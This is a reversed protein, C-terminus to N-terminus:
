CAEPSRYAVQADGGGAATSPSDWPTTVTERVSLPESEVTVSGSPLALSASASFCSSGGSPAPKPPTVLTMTWGESKVAPNSTMLHVSLMAPMGVTDGARDLDTFKVTKRAPDMPLINTLVDAPDWCRDTNGAASAFHGCVGPGIETIEGVFRVECTWGTSFDDWCRSFTGTLKATACSAELALTDQTEEIPLCLRKSDAQITASTEEYYAAATPLPAAAILLALTALALTTRM